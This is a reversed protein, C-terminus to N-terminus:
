HSKVRYTGRGFRRILTAMHEQVRKFEARTGADDDPLVLLSVVVALDLLIKM